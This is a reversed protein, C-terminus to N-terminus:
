ESRVILIQERTMIRSAVLGKCSEVVKFTVLSSVCYNLDHLNENIIEIPHFVMHTRHPLNHHEIQYFDHNSSANGCEYQRYVM